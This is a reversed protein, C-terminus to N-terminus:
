AVFYADTKCRHVSAAAQVRRALHTGDLGPLDLVQASGKTMGTMLSLNM